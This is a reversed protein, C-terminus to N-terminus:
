GHPEMFSLGISVECLRTQAPASVAAAPVEVTLEVEARDDSITAALLAGASVVDGAVRVPIHQGIQADFCGDAFRSGDSSRHRITIQM